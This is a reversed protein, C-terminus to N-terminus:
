GPRAARGRLARGPRRRERPERGTRESENVIGRGPAHRRGRRGRAGPRAPGRGRPRRLVRGLDIGSRQSEPAAAWPPPAGPRWTRPRPIVQPPVPRSMGRVSGTGSNGEARHFRGVPGPRRAVSESRHRGRSVQLRLGVRQVPIVGDVQAVPHDGLAVAGLVVPGGIRGSTAPRVTSSMPAQSPFYENRASCAPPTGRRRARGSRTPRRSRPGRRRSPRLANSRPVSGSWDRSSVSKQRGSRGPAARSRVPPPPAPTM